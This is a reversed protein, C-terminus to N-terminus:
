PNSQRRVELEQVVDQHEKRSLPYFIAFIIGGVLLLAPIPGVVLRIGTLTSAPQVSANPIYGSFDLVALALPVAISNTTKGMLTVLSYFMGEHRKGTDLEDIEIADPIMAWPLVHAAGVGIGALFCLVLLYILSSAATVTILLIQVVAWFAIGFIYALRKNYKKSIWNWLPLSLIATVFITGMIIETLGERRVVYKIYFLLNAEIIHMSTWTFLYIVASFVFPRNKLASKLSALLKPRELKTFYPKEKTGFFVFYLPIFSAAGFILGMRFVNGTNEPSMSGIIMMPVVFSVLGGLISFFMRYGTLETREDYDETLEPTLAFYPMGVFTGAADYLVFMFTYFVVLATQTELPPKWWLFAFALGYPLAGFLLFPRRRGWRTRTRDSLYGILPDNIYDWSKGIFLGIAAVAPAIGIVDTLFIPFYAAIITSTMSFGIDGFGYIIKTLRSLKKM